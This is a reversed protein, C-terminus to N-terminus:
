AILEAAPGEVITCSYGRRPVTRIGGALPGLKTRLRGVAAEAAHEDAAGDALARKTVVAPARRLLEVLVRREGPTLTVTTGDDQVLLDGQWQAVVGGFRLTRHEETLRRVVAQVMAGLRPRVPEVVDQVGHSRLAAATVPGVAVAAVPGDLAARLAAPDSVLDFAVSVAHACTFTLAHVRGAAAADLLRLAPGEDQARGWRYVAIDIVEAGLDELARAMLPEGGDRQVVVRQGAVGRDRLHDLVEAATTGAEWHVEVGNAHAAGRAKPGRAVVHAGACMARLDEDCDATEAVGFWSRTGIATLFVVVDAGGALAKTTADLTLDPDTLLSTRMVPGHVVTAGRRALLEAQEEARRDGTIGVTFGALPGVM